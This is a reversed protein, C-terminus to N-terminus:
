DDDTAISKKGEYDVYGRPTLEIYRYMSMPPRSPHRKMWVERTAKTRNSNDTHPTKSTAKGSMYITFKLSHKLAKGGVIEPTTYQDVPDSTEHSVIFSILGNEETINNLSSMMWAIAEARVPFNTREMGFELTPYTVSDIVMGKINNERILKSLPAQNIDKVWLKNNPELGIKGSNSMTLSASRGVLQLLKEVSRIDLVFIAPTIFKKPTYKLVVKLSEGKGVKRTEIAMKVYVLSTNLGYRKNLIKHWGDITYSGGETDIILCNKLLSKDKKEESLTKYYKIIEFLMQITMISKGSAPTGYVGIASGRPLGGMLENISTLSTPIYKPIMKVGKLFRQMYKNYEKNYISLAVLHSCMGDRYFFYKCSCSYHDDSIVVSHLGNKSKVISYLSNKTKNTCFISHKKARRLIAKSRM